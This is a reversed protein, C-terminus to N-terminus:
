SFMTGMRICNKIERGNMEVQSLQFIDEQSLNNGSTNLLNNWVKFRSENDLDKYNISISIHSKCGQLNLISIKKIYLYNYILHRFV